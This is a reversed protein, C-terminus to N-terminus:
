TSQEFVFYRVLMRKHMLLRHLRVQSIHRPLNSWLNQSVTTWVYRCCRTLAPSLAPHCTVPISHWSSSRLSITWLTETWCSADWLFWLFTKIPGCRLSVSGTMPISVGVDENKILVIEDFSHFFSFPFIPITYHGIGSMLTTCQNELLWFALAWLCVTYNCIIYM